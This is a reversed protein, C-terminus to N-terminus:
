QFMITKIKERINNSSDDRYFESFISSDGAGESLRTKATEYVTQLKKELDGKHVKMKNKICESSSDIKDLLLIIHSIYIGYKIEISAKDVSNDTFIFSSEKTIMNYDHKLSEYTDSRSM